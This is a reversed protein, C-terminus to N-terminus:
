LRGLRLGNLPYLNEEWCWFTKLGIKGTRSAQKKQKEPNLDVIDKEIAFLKNCYDRGIKGNSVEALTAKNTTPIGEVFYRRLHALM